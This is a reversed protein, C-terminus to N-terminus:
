RAVGQCAFPGVKTIQSAQEPPLSVDFVCEKKNWLLRIRNTAKLGTVFAEGRRAVYFDHADGDIRVIAGAPAVDGDDLFIKLLAGRGGRVPFVIKVASRMRPVAIQEISDIEANIPLDSPNLRVANNQYPLLRPLLAIGDPRTRTQESSGLGVGIDGYGAVEVLAFSDDVRRTAFVHGDAMVVGGTAGLRVTQQDPSASLDSSVRGFRSQYIAGAEGRAAGIQRGGLVRWGFGENQEPNRSAAVYFDSQGQRTQSAATLVTRRDLPVLVTVGVASGSASALARSVNVNLNVRGGLSVTYNASMTTIKEADFRRTQAFGLGFTGWKQTAYTGTGAMQLKIPLTDVAQGLQRASLSAGQVQIGASGRLGQRELGLLWQHGSGAQEHRSGMWAARGLLDLPLAAIMGTSVTALGRTAEARGELTLGSSWGHRWTGSTFGAGYHNSRLGLDNRVAGAEASWDNLGTALLQTTSFFPQVIVTERGLIDRVVLRAEGGGTVVPFNDLAFPGAPISSVQRLVDNVYLEVTSPTTSLGNIVPLPQSIFGPTLSFNTGIQVGGFYVSRGLMGTRTNSDGLRLTRHTEPFDRTFTTELRTWGSPSGPAAGNSLNRGVLSNTLVGLESSVGLEGVMGLDQGPITARGRSNTYNLDYNFFASPVVPDPESKSALTRALRTAAFAQASFALQLSQSAFDVKSSYGPVASLPLYNMGRYAIAPTNARLQVRWEEFANAPAYLEGNRELLPWTGTPAGNVIVELPRLSDGAVALTAPTQSLAPAVAALLGCFTLGAHLWRRLM